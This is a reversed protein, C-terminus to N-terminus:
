SSAETLRARFAQLRQNVTVRSLGVLEGVEGQSLGDFCHGLVIAVTVGDSSELAHRVLQRASAALAPDSPPIACPWMAAVAADWQGDRRARARLRTVALNTTMAFLYTLVQAEGRFQAPAEVLAAFVEQAVDRADAENGLLSHARRVVAAHTRRYLADLQSRSWGPSSIRRV